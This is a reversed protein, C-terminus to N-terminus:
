RRSDDFATDPHNVPNRHCAGIIGLTLFVLGPFILSAPWYVFWLGLTILALGTFAFIDGLSPRQM